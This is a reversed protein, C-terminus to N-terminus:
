VSHGEFFKSTLARAHSLKLHSVMHGNYSGREASPCPNHDPFLLQLHEGNGHAQICRRTSPRSVYWSHIGLISSCTELLRTCDRLTLIGEIKPHRISSPSVSNSHGSRRRSLNFRHSFLDFDSMGRVEAMISRTSIHLCLSLSSALDGRLPQISPSSSPVLIQYSVYLLGVFNGILFAGYISDLPPEEEDSSPGVSESLFTLPSSM